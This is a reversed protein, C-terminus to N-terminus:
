YKNMVWAILTELNHANHPYKKPLSQLFQLRGMKYAMDGFIKYEHYIGHEWILLRDLDQEVIAMDYKNFQTALPTANSHRATDEIATAIERINEDKLNRCLSLFYTASRQENYRKTADYFIDHFLAVLSLLEAEKQTIAGSDLDTNIQALLDELHTINHYHRHPERWKDLLDELQANIEYKDLLTQLDM